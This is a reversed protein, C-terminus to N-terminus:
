LAGLYVVRLAAMLVPWFLDGILYWAALLGILSFAPKNRLFQQYRRARDEDVLLAVAGSGDLPPLPILNFVLLLLNLSFLVSVGTAAVSPFGTGAALTLAAFSVSEPVQFLGAALGVRILLGAVVVLALNAAPGALSMWGARRPHRFAWRPDYPTSAWGIMWGSTVFFLIPVIVMGFPERRIHPRPDLSVHGGAYATPDGGRLAAWAHAAEHLVLSGLLVGYWVLALVPDFDSM